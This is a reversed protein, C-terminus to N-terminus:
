PDPEAPGGERAQREEQYAQVRDLPLGTPSEVVREIAWAMNAMEDRRLLVEEIPPSHLSAALAPPLFLLGEGAPHGSLAFLRWGPDLQQAPEIRVREGFTDTVVRSRVRCVAGIPLDVPIVLWDNGYILVFELLLMRALDERAADVTAFNVRVDEFEWWRPAPMGPFVVATPVTTQDIPAVEGGTGGRLRIRSSVDYSYWDLREETHEPASLMVHAETGDEPQDEPALATVTFAHEMREPLWSSADDEPTSFLTEFWTLWAQAARLVTYLGLQTSAAQLRATVPSGRDSFRFEGFQWQRALLWLPDYGRAQLAVTLDGSRVHPELRTWTTISVM